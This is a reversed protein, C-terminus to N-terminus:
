QEFYYLNAKQFIKESSNNLEVSKCCQSLEGIM